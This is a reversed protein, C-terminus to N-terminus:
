GITAPLRLQRVLAVFRPDARWKDYAPDVNLFRLSSLRKEAARQLWHFGQEDDGLNFYVMAISRPDTPSPNKKISDVLALAEDRRGAAAYAHALVASNAFKPSSLVRVAEEPRGTLKYVEGLIVPAALFSPALEMALKAQREAEQYRRANLLVVARLIYLGPLTPNRAAFRASWTIAEDHRGIASLLESYRSCADLSDPFLSLAREYERLGTEWDWRAVSASALAAHAEALTDDLAVARRAAELSEDTLASLGLSELEALSLALGAHAGAFTPELAIAKRFEAVARPASEFDTKWFLFRGRLFADYADAAIPREADDVFRKPGIKSSIDAAIATAIRRQLGFLDATTGEFEEAWLHSDSAAHILQVNINVRDGARQVSGEVVADVDLQRGIAPVSESTAKFRMVSTRSVVRADTIQALKTILAETMGDSFFEQEPDDSLNQLPLVAISRIPAPGSGNWRWSAAAAVAVLLAAIGAAIPLWRRRAAIPPAPAEHAVPVAPTVAAVRRVVPQFRYGRRPLTEIFGQPNDATALVKRLTSVNRTLSGEEVAVDPWVRSLLEDKTVAQGASEVLALLTDFVRPELAVVESGKFLLRQRPDVTFDSFTFLGDDQLPNPVM